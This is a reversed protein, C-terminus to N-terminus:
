LKKIWSPLLWCLVKAWLTIHFACLRWLASASVVLNQPQKEKLTTRTLCWM